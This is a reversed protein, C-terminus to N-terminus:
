CYEYDSEQQQSVRKHLRKVAKKTMKMSSDIRKLMQDLSEDQKKETTKEEELKKLKPRIVNSQASRLSDNSSNPDADFIPILVEPKCYLSQSSWLRNLRKIEFMSTNYRFPLFSKSLQLANQTIKDNKCPTELTRNSQTIQM